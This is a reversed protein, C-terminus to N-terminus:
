DIRSLKQYADFIFNVFSEDLVEMCKGVKLNLIKNDEGDSLFVKFYHDGWTTTYEETDVDIEHGDYEIVVSGYDILSNATASVTNIKELDM